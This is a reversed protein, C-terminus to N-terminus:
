KKAGVEILKKEKNQQFNRVAYMVRDRAHAADHWGKIEV